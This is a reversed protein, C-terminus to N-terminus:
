HLLIIVQMRTGSLSHPLTLLSQVQLKESVDGNFSSLNEGRPRGSTVNIFRQPGTLVQTIAAVQVLGGPTTLRIKTEM